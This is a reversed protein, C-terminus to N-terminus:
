IYFPIDTNGTWNWHKISKLWLIIIKLPSFKVIAYNLSGEGNGFYTWSYICVSLQGKEWRFTPFYLLFARLPKCMQDTLRSFHIKVTLNSSWQPFVLVRMKKRAQLLLHHHHHHAPPGTLEPERGSGQTVRQLTSTPTRTSAKSQRSHDSPRPRWMLLAKRM